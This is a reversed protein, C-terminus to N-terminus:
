VVSKWSYKKMCKYWGGLDGSLGSLWWGSTDEFTWTLDAKGVVAEIQLYNVWITGAFLGSFSM